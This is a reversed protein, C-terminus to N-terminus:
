GFDDIQLLAHLSKKVLMNKGIFMAEMFVDLFIGFEAFAPRRSGNDLFQFGLGPCGTKPVQECGVRLVTGAQGVEFVCWEGFNGARDM